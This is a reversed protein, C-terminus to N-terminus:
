QLQQHHLQQQLGNVPDFCNLPYGGMSMMAAAYNNQFDPNEFLSQQHVPVTATSSNSSASPPCSVTSATSEDTHGPSKLSLANGNFPNIPELQNQPQTQHHFGTQQSYPNMPSASQNPYLQPNLYCMPYNEMYNAAASTPTQNWASM